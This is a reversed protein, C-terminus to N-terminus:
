LFLVLNFVIPLSYTRFWPDKYLTKPSQLYRYVIIYPSFLLITILKQKKVTDCIYWDFRLWKSIIISRM